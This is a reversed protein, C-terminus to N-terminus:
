FISCYVRSLFISELITFDDNDKTREHMTELLISMKVIKAWKRGVLERQGLLKRDTCFCGNKQM